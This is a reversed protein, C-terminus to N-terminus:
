TKPFCVRNLIDTFCDIRKNLYQTHSSYNISVKNQVTNDKNNENNNEPLIADNECENNHKNSNENEINEMFNPM